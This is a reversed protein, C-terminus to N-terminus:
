SVVRVNLFALDTMTSPEKGLRKASVGLIRALRAVDVDTPAVRGSEWTAICSTSLNLTYALDSQRLKVRVRAVQLANGNWGHKPANAPRGEPTSKTM